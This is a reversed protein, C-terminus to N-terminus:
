EIRGVAEPRYGATATVPDICPVLAVAIVRACACKLGARGPRLGKKVKEPNHYGLAAGKTPDNGSQAGGDNPRGENRRRPTRKPTPREDAAFSNKGLM